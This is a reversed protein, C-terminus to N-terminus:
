WCRHHCHQGSSLAVAHSEPRVRCPHCGSGVFLALAHMDVFPALALHLILPLPSQPLLIALSFLPTSTGSDSAVFICADLQLPPPLLLCGFCYDAAPAGMICFLIFIRQSAHTEEEDPSPQCAVCSHHLLLLFPQDVKTVFGAVRASAPLCGMGCVCVCLHACSKNLGSASATNGVEPSISAPESIPDTLPHPHNNRWANLELRHDLSQLLAVCAPSCSSHPTSLLLARLVAVCARTLLHSRPVTTRPLLLALVLLTRLLYLCVCFCM